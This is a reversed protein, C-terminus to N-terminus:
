LKADFHGLNWATQGPIPWGEKNRNRYDKSIARESPQKRIEISVSSLGARNLSDLISEFDWNDPSDHIPLESKSTFRNLKWDTGARSKNDIVFQDASQPCRRTEGVRHSHRQDPEIQNQIASFLNSM